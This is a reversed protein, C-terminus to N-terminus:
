NTAIRSRLAILTKLNWSPQLSKEKNCRALLIGQRPHIQQVRMSFFAGAWELICAHQKAM